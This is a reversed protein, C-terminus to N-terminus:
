APAEGSAQNKEKALLNVKREIGWRYGSVSGDQRVVRHCPIAVALVNAACAKAVARAASPCGMSKAIGSYTATSGPPIARLAQWVRQQFATGQIDLPIDLQKRPNEISAIVQAMVGEFQADSGVLTAATFRDQLDRVLIEPDDGLAIACIGQSSQAVLVAGLSCAGVAFLIQSQAGAQRYNSPTMGLVSSSTEYFRSSSSYGAAYIAATISPLVDLATRMREQQRQRAYARPTVGIITKFLRHFHFPSLAAAAALAALSPPPSAMEMERCARVVLEVQRTRAATQPKSSPTQPKPFDKVSCYEKTLQWADIYAVLLIPVSRINSNFVAV